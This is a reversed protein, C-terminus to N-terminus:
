RSSSGLGGPSRPAAIFCPVLAAYLERHRALAARYRAHRGPDPAVPPGVAGPVAEVSPIAGLAELALLAAGRASGEPELSPQIPVGLVDTMIRTWVPSATLAGGTAVVAAARPCVERLREHILAFRYAVTELGAQLIDIPRTALSLGVVAGRATPMWGTSREGALFPLLTLGHADPELGALAAEIERPPGLRLTESLWAYVSGGNALSGGLLIRRRDVRYCWLGQPPVIADTPWSVRLAGSTGVMLAAREPGTCGAGVNSCAGDGLAPLWPVRALAPWRAAFEPCLGLLPADLDALPGLREPELDLARLTPGDWGLARQDFLGTGSAMSISTRTEGFLRLHVYEGFSLLRRIARFGAPDRERLWLLRAPLYSTHLLSGTRAHYAKEDLRKRLTEVLGASRTDAWSYLPTAARGDPGVGLVTHWFTSMAVGAMEGAAAGLAALLDDLVTATLGLLREADIEVGGDPTTDMEYERRCQALARARADFALARVSSSGVDLTVVFPPTAGSGSRM